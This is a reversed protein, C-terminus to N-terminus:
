GFPHDVTDSGSRESPGAGVLWAAFHEGEIRMGSAWDGYEVTDAQLAWMLSQVAAIGMGYVAFSVLPVAPVDPPSFAVGLGGM